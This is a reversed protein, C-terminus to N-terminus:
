TIVVPALIEMKPSGLGTKAVGASMAKSGQM